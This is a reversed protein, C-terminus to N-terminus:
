PADMWLSRLCSKAKKQGGFALKICLSLKHLLMPMQTVGRGGQRGIYNISAGEAPQIHKQLPLPFLKSDGFSQNTNQGM